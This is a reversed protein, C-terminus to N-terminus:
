IRRSRESGTVMRQLVRNAEVAGRIEQASNIVPRGLAALEAVAYVAADLRNPSDRADPEWTTMELELADLYGVHHLLGAEALKAIPEARVAKTRTAVHERIYLVGDRQAPFPRDPTLRELKVRERTAIFALCDHPGDNFHSREIAIGAARKNIALAFVQEAQQGM